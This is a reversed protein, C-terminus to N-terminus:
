MPAGSASRTITSIPEEASVASSVISASCFFPSFTPATTTRRYRGKEVFYKKAASGFDAKKLVITAKPAAQQALVGGGWGLTGVVLALASVIAKM